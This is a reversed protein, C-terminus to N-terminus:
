DDFGEQYQKYLYVVSAIIWLIVGLSATIVLATIWWSCHTWTKIPAIVAVIAITALLLYTGVVLLFDTFKCM